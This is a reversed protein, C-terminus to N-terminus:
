LKTHLEHEESKNQMTYHFSICGFVGFGVYEESAILSFDTSISHFHSLYLLLM